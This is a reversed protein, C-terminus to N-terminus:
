NDSPQIQLTSIRFKKISGEFINIQITLPNFEKALCSAILVITSAEFDSITHRWSVLIAVIGCPARNVISPISHEQLRSSGAVPARPPIRMAQFLDM